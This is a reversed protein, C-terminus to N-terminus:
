TPDKNFRRKLYILRQIAQNRNNPIILNEKKFPFPVIYHDGSKITSEETKLFAKSIIGKDDTSIDMM